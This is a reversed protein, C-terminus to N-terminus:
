GARAADREALYKARLRKTEATRRESAENAHRNAETGAYVLDLWREHRESPTPCWPEADLALWLLRELPHEPGARGRAPRPPPLNRCDAFLGGDATGTHRRVCIVDEAALIADVRARAAALALFAKGATAGGRAVSATSTVDVGALDPAVKRADALAADFAPRLFDTVLQDGHAEVHREIGGTAAGAVKAAQHAADDAVDYADRQALTGQRGPRLRDREAGAEVAKAALEPVARAAALLDDPLDYAGAEHGRFLREVSTGELMTM